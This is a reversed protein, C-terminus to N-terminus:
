LGELFVLLSDACRFRDPPTGSDTAHGLARQKIEMDAHLYTQTTETSEHGLWLAIVSLDVGRRLLNMAATHRLTHPTVTKGIISPCTSSATASHRAVLRQLADASLHGGRSSPFVPDAPDAGPESLWSELARAVDPRLPTCRAKRGKGLCRVHAGTGLEVDRRELSTLEGNRLGTQVAVLLLMRDRRGIWTISDPAALLATTEEETLFEVPSRQHRKGPIGLVRQCHLAYRPETFSVYHFFARLAALRANRSRASNGREQELHDLFRGVFDVDLDELVLESPARGLHRSAFLLLLRFADRYSAVTHPSADLQRILRESFFRQLLCPFSAAMTSM